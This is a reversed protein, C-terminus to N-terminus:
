QAVRNVAIDIERANFALDDIQGHHLPQATDLLQPGGM